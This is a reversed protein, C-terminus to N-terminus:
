LDPDLTITRDRRHDDFDFLSSQVVYFPMTMLVAGGFWQAFVYLRFRRANQFVGIGDRLYDFFGTETKPPATTEPEGMSVFVISSLFILGSAMAIIGAYSIPFSMKGLQFEATAAIGLALVGGGFFRTALLRSRRDSPVSRSVIDNYPVAVIGSVFAYATWILSVLAALLANPLESGSFLALAMVALCVARGFGGIVYYRM